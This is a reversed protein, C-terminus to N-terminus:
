FANFQLLATLGKGQIIETIWQYRLGPDMPHDAPLKEKLRRQQM